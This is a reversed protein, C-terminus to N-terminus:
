CAGCVALRQQGTGVDVFGEAVTMGWGRSTLGRGGLGGVLAWAKAAGGETRVLVAPRAAEPPMPPLRCLPAKPPQRAANGHAARLRAGSVVASAKATIGRM